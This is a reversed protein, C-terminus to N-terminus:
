EIMDILYTKSNFFGKIGSVETSIFSVIFEESTEDITITIKYEDGFKVIQNITFVEDELLTKFTECYSVTEPNFHTECVDSDKINLFYDEALTDPSNAATPMMVFLYFLYLVVGLGIIILLIKGIKKM